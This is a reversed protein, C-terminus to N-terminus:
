KQELKFRFPISVWVLVPKGNMLAPTFVWKKAADLAPQNFMDDSSKVLLSKKVRGEKDLLIKVTVSGELGIRRALDPYEPVASLVVQPDREILIWEDPLPDPENFPKMSEDVKIERKELESWQQNAIRVLDIQSAFTMTSDVEFPPVPIPIGFNYKEPIILNIGTEVNPDLPPQFINTLDITIGEDDKVNELPIMTLWEHLHYGGIVALQILVAVLLALTMSRHYYLRLEQYGYPAPVILTKM